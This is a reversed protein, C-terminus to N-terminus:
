NRVSSLFKLLLGRNIPEETPAAEPEPEDAPELEDAPEPEEDVAPAEGESGLGYSSPEAWEDHDMAALEHDTWPGRDALGDVGDVGDPGAGDGEAEATVESLLAVLAARGDVPPQDGIEYVHAPDLTGEIEPEAAGVGRAHAELAAARLAAYRDAALDAGSGAPDAGDPQRDDPDPAPWEPGGDAEPSALPHVGVLAPGVSEGIYTDTEPDGDVGSGAPVEWPHEHGGATTWSRGNGAATGWGAATGAPTEWAEAGGAPEEGAGRTAVPGTGVAATEADPGAEVAMDGPRDGAAEGAVPGVPDGVRVLGAEVLQRVLRCGDFEPLQCRDLVEEVPRGDGVAVVVPWQEGELVVGGPPADAELTLHHALSPVVAAIGEWEELRSQAEVLAEDLGAEPDHAVAGPAPLTGAAFTFEGDALRLLEYLAQVARTSRGACFAVLRGEDFWLWGEGRAGCVRLEGTKGTANLFQLVEPLAVTSLSGTLV